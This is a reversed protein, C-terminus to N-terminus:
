PSCGGAREQRQLGERSKVEGAVRKEPSAEGVAGEETQKLKVKLGWLKIKGTKGKGDVRTM